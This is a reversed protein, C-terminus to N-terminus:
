GVSYVFGAIDDGQNMSIKTWEPVKFDECLFHALLIDDIGHLLFYLMGKPNCGSCIVKIVVQDAKPVPIPSDITEVLAGPQVLAEKM